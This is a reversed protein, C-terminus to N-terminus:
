ITLDNEQKLKAGVRFVEAIVLLFLASLITEINVIAYLNFASFKLHPYDLKDRMYSSSVILGLKDTIFVVISLVAIWRLRIGNEVIFFSGGRLSKLIRITYRISLIICVLSALIILCYVFLFGGPVTATEIVGMGYNMQVETTLDPSWNVLAEKEAYTFLVPFEFPQLLKVSIDLRPLAYLAVMFVLFSSLWFLFYFIRFVLILVYIFSKRKSITQNEMEIGKPYKDYNLCYKNIFM